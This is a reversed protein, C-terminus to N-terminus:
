IMEGTVGGVSGSLRGQISVDLETNTNAMWPFSTKEALLALSEGLKLNTLLIHTSIKNIDVSSANSLQQVHCNLNHIDKLSGLWHNLPCWEHNLWLVQWHALLVKRILEQSIV